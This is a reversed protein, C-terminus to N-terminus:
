KLLEVIQKVIRKSSKGDWLDPIVGKKWKDSFLKNLAPEIAKPNVGLLENTGIDVTEPRETTNRLTMCPVGM